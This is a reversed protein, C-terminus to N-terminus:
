LSLTSFNSQNKAEKSCAVNKQYMDDILIKEQNAKFGPILGNCDCHFNLRFIKAFIDRFNASKQLFNRKERFHFICPFISVSNRVDM